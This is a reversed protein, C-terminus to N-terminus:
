AAVRMGYERAADELWLWVYEAFSRRVYLEFEPAAEDKGDDTRVLTIPAKSLVSGATQGPAFAREHLDLPCGKALLDRANPGALAIITYYDSVDVVSVHNDGFAQRLTEATGPGDGPVDVWWEDPGIWLARVQGHGASTLPKTPLKFGM